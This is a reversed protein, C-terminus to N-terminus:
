FTDRIYISKERSVAKTRVKIAVWSSLVGLRIKGQKKKGKEGEGM